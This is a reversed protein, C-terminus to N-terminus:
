GAVQIAWTPLEDRTVFALPVGHEACFGAVASRVSEFQYDHGTLWGGARLKPWWARMDAAVASETHIADIYVFDLSGDAVARAAELSTTRAIAVRESAGLTTAVEEYWEEFRGDTVNCLDRPYVAEDQHRWPDVLLLWAPQMALIERAFEGRAVGVEVCRKHRIPITRLMAARDAPAALTQGLYRHSASRLHIARAAAVLGHRFGHDRLVEGYHVDQEYWVIEEPFLTALPVTELIRKDFMFCWGCLARNVDVNVTLPVGPDVLGWREERLGFPSVSDVEALGGLLARLFGDSFLAVDNNLAMFYRAPSNVCEAFGACLFINYAFRGGPTVVEVGRGFLEEDDATFPEDRLRENTEVVVVRFPVDPSSARLARIGWKTMGYEREGKSYSLVVVDILPPGEAQRGGQMADLILVYNDILRRDFPDAKVAAFAHDRATERRGLQWAAVAVLDHPRARAADNEAAGEGGAGLALARSAAWYSGAHDGALRCADALELWPGPRQPSDACARLLRSFGSASSLLPTEAVAITEACGRLPALAPWTPGRWAYGIRAHCRSDRREVDGANGDSSEVMHELRTAGLRWAGEVVGRWGEALTEDSDAMVCLDADPPVLELSRNRAADERWPEIAGRVVHVGAARLAAAPGGGPDLMHIGEAGACSAVFAAAATEDGRALGYVHVRSRRRRREAEATAREEALRGLLDSWKATFRALADRLGEGSSGWSIHHSAEGIVYNRYGAALARLCIDVDYGHWGGYSEDFGGIADFVSRRMFLCYGDLTQVEARRLPGDGPPLPLFELPAGEGDGQLLRGFCPPCRYWPEGPRQAASGCFGLVGPRELADLYRPVVQPADFLLRADQHIFCLVDDPAAVAARVLANYGTAMSAAGRLAEFRVREGSPALCRQLGEYLREDSLLTLAVFM